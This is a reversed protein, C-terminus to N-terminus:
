PALTSNDALPVAGASVPFLSGHVRVAGAGFCDGAFDGVGEASVGCVEVDVCDCVLDEAVVGGSVGADNVRVLEPCDDLVM